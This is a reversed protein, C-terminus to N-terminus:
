AHAAVTCDDLTGDATLQAFGNVPDTVNWSNVTGNTSTIVIDGATSTTNFTVAGNEAPKVANVISVDDTELASSISWAYRPLGVVNTVSTSGSCEVETNPATGSIQVNQLCTIEVSNFTFDAGTATLNFKAM